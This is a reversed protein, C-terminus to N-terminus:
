SPEFSHIPQNWTSSFCLVHNYLHLSEQTLDTTQAQQPCPIELAHCIAKRSLGSLPPFLFHILPQLTFIQGIYPEMGLKHLRYRLLRFHEKYYTCLVAADRIFLRFDALLARENPLDAFTELPIGTQKEFRNPFHRVNARGHFTETFWQGGRRVMKMAAIDYIRISNGVHVFAIEFFVKNRHMAEGITKPLRGDQYAAVMSPSHWKKVHLHPQM